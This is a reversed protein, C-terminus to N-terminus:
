PKIEGIELTKTRSTFGSVIKARGYIKSLKKVLEQNAKNNEPPSKLSVMWVDDKKVSFEPQGTKVKVKVIV